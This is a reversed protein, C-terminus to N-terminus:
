DQTERKVVVVDELCNLASYNSNSSNIFKMLVQQVELRFQLIKSEDVTRVMPLLSKFFFAHDDSQENRLTIKSSLRARKPAPSASSTQQYDEMFGESTLEEEMPNGSANLHTFNNYDEDKIETDTYEAYTQLFPNLFSLLDFMPWIKKRTGDLRM